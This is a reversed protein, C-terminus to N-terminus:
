LIKLLLLIAPDELYAICFTPFKKIEEGVQGWVKKGWVIVTCRMRRTVFNGYKRVMETLQEDVKSPLFLCGENCAFV